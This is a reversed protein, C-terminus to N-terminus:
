GKLRAAVAADVAKDDAVGPLIAAVIARAADKAVVEISKMAGDRIDKIRQESEV